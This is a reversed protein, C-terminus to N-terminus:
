GSASGVKMIATSTCGTQYGSAELAKAILYSTTTKGNTGTVGIVILKRAPHRYWIAALRALAYHYPQLWRSPIHSKLRYLISM